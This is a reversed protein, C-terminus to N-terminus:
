VECCFLAFAIPVLVFVYVFIVSRKDCIVCVVKGTGIEIVTSIQRM